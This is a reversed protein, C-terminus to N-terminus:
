LKLAEEFESYRILYLLPGFTEEQVIPWHNKVEALAPHVYLELPADAVPDGGAIVKGGQERIKVLAQQFTRVTDRDIMSGVLTQPHLPDGFCGDLQRYFQVLQDRM